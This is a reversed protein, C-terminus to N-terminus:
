QLSATIAKWQGPVFVIISMVKGSLVGSKGIDFAIGLPDYIMTLTRGEDTFFEKGYSDEVLAKDTGGTIGGKDTKYQESLQILVLVVKGSEKEAIVLFPKFPWDYLTYKERESRNVVSGLLGMADNVDTGLSIGGASQGAVVAAGSEAAAPLGLLGICVVAVVLGRMVAM